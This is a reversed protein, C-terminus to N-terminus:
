VLQDNISIKKENPERIPEWAAYREGILFGIIFMLGYWRVAFSGVRFIEPNVNWNM